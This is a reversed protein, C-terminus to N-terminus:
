MGDLAATPQGPPTIPAHARRLRIVFWAGDITDILEIGGGQGLAEKGMADGIGAGGPHGLDGALDVDVVHPHAHEVLLGPELRLM